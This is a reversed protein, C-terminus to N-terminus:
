LSALAQEVLQVVQEPAEYQIDGEPSVAVQDTHGKTIVEQSQYDRIIYRIDLKNRYERLSARVVIRQTFHLPKLYKVEMAVVPYFFGLTELTSYPIGLQELLKCRSVEFYKPYNGHWVVRYTDVDYFPIDIEVDAWALEAM